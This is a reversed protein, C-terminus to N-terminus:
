HFSSFRPNHEPTRQEGGKLGVASRKGLYPLDKSMQLASVVLNKLTRNDLFGILEGKTGDSQCPNTNQWIRCGVKSVQMFGPLFVEM